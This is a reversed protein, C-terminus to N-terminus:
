FRFLHTLKVVAGRDALAWADDGVGREETFVIFLDSGPRHIFNFRINSIFDDSLSNYQILANTTVKTSLAWILRVGTIDATFSGNPLDVENRTFSAGISFAPSPTLSLSGRLSLLDGGFFDSRSLDAGLVWPRSPSSAFNAHLEDTRYRGAPVPISDALVFGHDVRTEGASVNVSANDGSSWTPLVSAGASWDQFRGDMTSQYEVNGRFDNLRLGAVDPRIRRRGHLSTRRVDTRTIFGSSAVAGRGVAFHEAYAGWPDTTYDLSAAYAAGEGGAGATASRSAFADLVLEPTLYFRGDIGAVTNAPGDGRRDTLM